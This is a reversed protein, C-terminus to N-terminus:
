IIIWDKEYIDKTDKPGKPGFWNKPAITKKVNFFLSSKDLYAGWWSFSSNAIINNKCEIMLALNLLEDNNDYYFINDGIFNEKVWAMDDSVFIFSSDGILSMAEKYYEVSCTPHFEPNKLYDGRRVHVSTTTKNDIEFQYTFNRALQKYDELYFLNNIQQKFDDFYKSSQFYGSLCLDTTYPLEEYSFKPEEYTVRFKHGNSDNVNRLISNRYKNSTFGQAPTYCSNFDFGSVDNNRLALAHTTAIQFLQNGIGGCLKCTIM